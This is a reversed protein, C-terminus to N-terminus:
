LKPLSLWGAVAGLVMNVALAALVMGMVRAIVSAGATGILRSVPGAAVLIAFTIGLVIALVVATMWLQAFDFRHDDTLLVIALMTGPGAIKPIGIPYVALASASADGTTEVPAHSHGRISELAFVFLVIGGAIQFARLSVGMKELLFGGGVMFFLLVAAAVLVAQLAIRRQTALEFRGTQDMFTPLVGIPNVVVLLTVFENLREQWM